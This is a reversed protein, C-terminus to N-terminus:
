ETPVGANRGALIVSISYAKAPTLGAFIKAAADPRMRGLFGSSFRPEMEEFLAAADKPKMNEYVSVLRSLDDESATEALAMTARLKEEAKVLEVLKQDIGHKAVALAQIRDAIQNEQASIREERGKLTKLLEGISEDTQCALPQM